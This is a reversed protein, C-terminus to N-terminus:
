SLSFLDIKKVLEQRCGYKERVQLDEVVNEIKDQVDLQTKPKAEESTAADETETEAARLKVPRRVAM